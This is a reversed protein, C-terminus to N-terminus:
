SESSEHRAGTAPMACRLEFMKVGPAYGPAQQVFELRIGQMGEGNRLNGIFRTLEVDSLAYGKLLLAPASQLQANAPAPGSSRAARRSLPQDTTNAAPISKPADLIMETLVIDDNISRAIHALMGSRYRRGLLEGIRLLEDELVTREHALAQIQERLPGVSDAARTLEVLQERATVIRGHHWWATSAAGLLVLCLGLGWGVAHRIMAQRTFYQEPILNIDKM